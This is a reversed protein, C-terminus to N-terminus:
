KEFEIFVLNWLELSNDLTFPHNPLMPDLIFHIETCIGCPGVDGM